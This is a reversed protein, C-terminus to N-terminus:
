GFVPYMFSSLPGSSALVILVALLILAAIMPILWYLKRKWLFMMLEGLVGMRAVFDHM